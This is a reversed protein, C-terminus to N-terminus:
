APSFVLLTGGLRLADGPNLTAQQNKILRGNIYTGDQSGLDLLTYGNADALIEAHAPSVRTDKLCIENTPDTGIRCPFHLMPLSTGAQPGREIFLVPTKVEPEPVDESPRRNRILVVALIILGALLILGVLIGFAITLWSFLSSAPAKVPTANVAPTGQAAGTPQAAAAPEAGGVSLVLSSTGLSIGPLPAAMGSANAVELEAKELSLSTQCSALTSFEVQALAGNASVPTQAAFIADVLGASQPVSMYNLGSLQSSPTTPQLCAPDYRLQFSFGQIPTATNAKLIVTITEGAAYAQKSTEMWITEAAQASVGFITNFMLILAFVLAMLQKV